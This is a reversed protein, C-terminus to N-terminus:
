LIFQMCIPCRKGENRLQQACSLHMADGCPLFTVLAHGNWMPGSKKCVPCANKTQEPKCNHGAWSENTICMSCKSCHRFNERKGVRCFGCEECHYIPRPADEWLRCASCFYKPPANGPCGATACAEAVPQFTRCEPCYVEETKFKDLAHDSIQDHCIKCDDILRRCCTSVLKFNRCYHQCGRVGPSRFSPELREPFECLRQFTDKWNSHHINPHFKIRFKTSCVSKWLGQDQTISCWRKNTQGLHSLDRCDLCKAIAILLEDPLLVFSDDTRSSATEMRSVGENTAKLLTHQLFVLM